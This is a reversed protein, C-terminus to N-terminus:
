LQRWLQHKGGAVGRDQWLLTSFRGRGQKYEATKSWHHTAAVAVQCRVNLEYSQGMWGGRISGENFIM